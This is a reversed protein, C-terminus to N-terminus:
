GNVTEAPVAMPIIVGTLFALFLLRLIKEDGGSIFDSSFREIALLKLFGIRIIPLYHNDLYSPL